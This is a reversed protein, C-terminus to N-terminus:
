RGTAGVKTHVEPVEPVIALFYQQILRSDARHGCSECSMLHVIRCSITYANLRCSRPIQVLEGSTTTHHVASPGRVHPLPNPPVVPM